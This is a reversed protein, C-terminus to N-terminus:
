SMRAVNILSGTTNGRRRGRTRATTERKSRLKVQSRRQPMSWVASAVGHSREEVWANVSLKAEGEDLVVVVHWQKVSDDGRHKWGVGHRIVCRRSGDTHM